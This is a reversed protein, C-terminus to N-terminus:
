AGGPQRRRRLVQAMPGEGELQAPQVAPGPLNHRARAAVLERLEETIYNESWGNQRLLAAYAEPEMQLLALAAGWQGASRARGFGDSGFM